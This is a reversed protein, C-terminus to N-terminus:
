EDTLADELDKEFQASYWEKDCNEVITKFVDDRLLEHDCTAIAKAIAIRFDAQMEVTYDEAKYFLDVQEQLYDPVDISFHNFFHIVNKVDEATLVVDKDLDSM